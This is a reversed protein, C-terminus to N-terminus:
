LENALVIQAVGVNTHAEDLACIVTYNSERFAGSSFATHIHMYLIKASSIRLM